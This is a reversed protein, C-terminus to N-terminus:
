GPKLIIEVILILCTKHHLAAHLKVTGNEPHLVIKTRPNHPWGVVPCTVNSVLCSTFLMLNSHKTKLSFTHRNSLATWDSFAQYCEFFRHLFLEASLKVDAIHHCFFAFCLMEFTDQAVHAHLANYPLNLGTTCLVTWKLHSYHLNSM